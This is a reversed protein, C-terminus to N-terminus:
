VFIGLLCLKFVCVYVCMCVGWGVWVCVCVKMLTEQLQRRLEAVDENLDDNTQKLTRNVEELHRITEEKEEM